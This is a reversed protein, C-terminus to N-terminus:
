RFRSEGAPAELASEVRPNGEFEEIQESPLLDLAVSLFARLTEIETEPDKDETAALIENMWETSAM